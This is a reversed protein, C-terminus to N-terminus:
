AMGVDPDGHAFGFIQDKFEKLSFPPLIKEHKAPQSAQSQQDAQFQLNQDNSAEIRQGDFSDAQGIINTSEVASEVSPQEVAEAQLEPTTLGNYPLTEMNSPEVTDAEVYQDAQYEIPEEDDDSIRYIPINPIKHQPEGYDNGQYSTPQPENSYATDNQVDDDYSIHLIPINPIEHRQQALEQVQKRFKARNQNQADYGAQLYKQTAFHEERMAELTHLGQADATKLIASIYAPPNIPSHASSVNIAFCLMRAGYKKMLFNMSKQNRKTLPGIQSRYQTLVQEFDDEAVHDIEGFDDLCHKATPQSVSESQAFDTSIHGLNKNGNARTQAPSDIKDLNIYNNNLDKIESTNM